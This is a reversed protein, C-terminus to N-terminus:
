TNPNKKMRSLCCGPNESGCKELSLRKKWIHRNKKWNIFIVGCMLCKRLFTNEKDQRKEMQKQMEHLSEKKQEKLYDIAAALDLEGDGTAYYNSAYNKLEESLTMGPKVRMQAMAMTDDYIQPSLDGMLMQLDGDKVSLEEADELCVLTENKGYRDFNRSLLFEKDGSEFKMEGCYYNPNEWPEYRSFADQAAARGRGRELGFLMARIFTYLTSKGSENEGYIVNMGDLFHIEKNTFKGFNKLRLEKIKM